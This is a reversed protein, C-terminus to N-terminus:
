FLKFFCFLRFCSNIVNIVLLYIFSVITPKISAWKKDTALQEPRTDIQVQTRQLLNLDYRISFFITSIFHFIYWCPYPYAVTSYEHYLEPSSTPSINPYGLLITPHAQFHFYIKNCPFYNNLISNQLM